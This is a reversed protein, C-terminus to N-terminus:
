TSLSNAIFLLCCLIPSLCNGVPSFVTRIPVIPLPCYALILVWPDIPFKRTSFLGFVPIVKFIEGNVM